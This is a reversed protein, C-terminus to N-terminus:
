KKIAIMRHDRYKKTQLSEFAKKMVKRPVSIGGTAPDMLHYNNKDCGVVVVYNSTNRRELRIPKTNLRLILFNDKLKQQIMQLNIETETIRIRKEIARKLHQTESFKAHEIDEKTYRYFRYDPFNYETSEVLVEPDLGIMKAFRALGYISSGRTPLNV